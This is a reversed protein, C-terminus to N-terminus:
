GLLQSHQGKTLSETPPSKQTASWSNTIETLSFSLLLPSLPGKEIAKSVLWPSGLHSLSFLGKKQFRSCKFVSVKISVKAGDNM